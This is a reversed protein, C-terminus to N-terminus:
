LCDEANDDEGEDNNEDDDEFDDEEFDGDIEVADQQIERVKAFRERMKARQENSLIRPRRPLAYKKPFKYTKDVETKRLLVYIDPFEDVLKDLRRMVTKDRTYLVATGEEANFNITTEMEYRSFKYSPSKDSSIM